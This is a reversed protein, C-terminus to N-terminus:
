RARGCSHCLGGVLSTSPVIRQCVTCSAKGQAYLEAKLLRAGLDAILNDATEAATMLKSKLALIQTQQRDVIGTLCTMSDVLSSASGVVDSLLGVIDLQKKRSAYLSYASVAVAIVAISIAINM